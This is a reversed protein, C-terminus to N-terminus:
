YCLVKATCNYSLFQNSTQIIESEDAAITSGAVSGTTSVDDDSNDLDPDEGDEQEEGEEPHHCGQVRQVIEAESLRETTEVQDDATAYESFPVQVNLIQQINDWVNREPEPEPEPATPVSCIFGARHFCKDILQPTVYDWAAVINECPQSSIM